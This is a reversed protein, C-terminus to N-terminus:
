FNEVFFDKKWNKLSQQKSGREPKLVCKDNFFLGDFKKEVQGFFFFLSIFCFRKRERVRENTRENRREM